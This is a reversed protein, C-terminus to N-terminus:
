DQLGAPGAHTHSACILIADPITGIVAALSSRLPKTFSVSVGMVDLTVLAARMDGDELVLVQALLPDHVGTSVGARAMYGDMPLGVPPTIDVETVGIRFVDGM